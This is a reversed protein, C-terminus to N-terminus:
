VAQSLTDLNIRDIVDDGDVKVKQAVIGIVSSSSSPSNRNTPQVPITTDHLHSHHLLCM